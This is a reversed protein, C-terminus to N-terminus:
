FTYDDRSGLYRPSNSHVATMTFSPNSAAKAGVNPFGDNLTGRATM